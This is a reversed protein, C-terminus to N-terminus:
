ERSQTLEFEDLVPYNLYDRFRAPTSPWTDPVGNEDLYWSRCGTVWVTGDMSAALERDLEDAVSARPAMTQFEGQQWLKICAMIYDVQTQAISILSFNGIPSRPGQLMFFNPFGPLAVSRYARAKDSWYDSLRASERTTLEMPRMYDHAKFGTALVLVDVPHRRGDATIVADSEIHDIGTDVLSVNPQQMARYYGGSMVMRKCMPEDPPTLKRRLEPDRVRRLHWNLIRTISSRQWGPQVVAKAFYHEFLWEHSRHVLRNLGPVHRLLWREARLYRRNPVPFIWQPTRQFVTLAQGRNGLETSIQM